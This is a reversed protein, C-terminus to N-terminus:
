PNNESPYSKLVLQELTLTGSVDVQQKDGYKKSWKSLLKLDTDIILKDRQVDGTSEERGRATGRLRAAIADYGIERARAIDTSVSEPVTAVKGPVIWDHVARSSPMKEDRCIEELPEGASLRECIEEVIKESYKSPRGM